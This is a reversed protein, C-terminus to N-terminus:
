QERRTEISTTEIAAVSERYGGVMPAGHLAIIMAIAAIM